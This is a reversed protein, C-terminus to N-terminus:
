PIKQNPISSFVKDTTMCEDRSFVTLNEVKKSQKLFRDFALEDKNDDIEDVMVIIKAKHSNQLEKYRAPIHVIGNDIHAEFEVAYM